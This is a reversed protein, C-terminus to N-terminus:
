QFQRETLTARVARTSFYLLATSISHFQCLIINRLEATQCCSVVDFKSDLKANETEVCSRFFLLQGTFTYSLKHLQAKVPNEGQKFLEKNKMSAVRVTSVSQLIRVTDKLV